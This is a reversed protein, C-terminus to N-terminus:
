ETNPDLANFYQKVRQRESSPVNERDIANENRRLVEPSLEYYPVKTDGVQGPAGKTDVSYSEENAKNRADGAKPDFFDGRRQYPKHNRSMKPMQGNWGQGQGGTSKGGNGTGQGKGHGDMGNAQEPMSGSLGALTRRADNLQQQAMKASMGAHGSGKKGNNAGAIAQQLRQLQQPTLSQMSQKSLDHMTQAAGGADGAALQNALMSMQQETALAKREQESLKHMPVGSALKQKARTAANREDQSRGRLAQRVDAAAKLLDGKAKAQAERDLDQELRQLADELQNMRVMASKKSIRNHAMEVGLQRMNRLVQRAIANHDLSSRSKKIERLAMQLQKGADRVQARETRDESSHLMPLQPLSLLLAVTVWSALAVKHHRCFTRPFVRRPVDESAHALADATVLARFGGPIDDSDQLTIATSLRQKLNLRRELTLAIALDSPPHRRAVLVGGCAGVLAVIALILVMGADTASLYWATFNHLLVLLMGAIGALALGWCALRETILLSIRQRFSCVLAGLQVDQESM